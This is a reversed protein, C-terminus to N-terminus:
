YEDIWNEGHTFVRDQDMAQGGSPHNWERIDGREVLYDLAALMLWSDGRAKRWAKSARFAGAESLLRRAEDRIAILTANGQETFLEPKMQEYNYMM